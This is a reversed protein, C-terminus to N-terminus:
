RRKDSLLKIYGDMYFEYLLVTAEETVKGTVRLERTDALERLMRYCSKGVPHADGNIFVTSDHCLM